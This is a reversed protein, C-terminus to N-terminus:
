NQVNYKRIKKLQEKAWEVHSGNGSKALRQEAYDCDGHLLANVAMNYNITPDDPHYKLAMAYIAVFEPSGAEHAGAAICFEEASLKTANNGMIKEIIEPEQYDRITYSIEYDTRRLHPYINTLLFKYSEPYHTKISAEKSDPDLDSGIIKIIEDKGEISLTDLSAELGAWNEAVSSTDFIAIPLKYIIRIYDRLAATRKEALDANVTYKGEPSAYGKLTINEVKIDSDTFVTDLTARIESLELRNDSYDPYIETKNVPFDIYATGRLLRSKTNKERAQLQAVDPILWIPNEIKYKRIIRLSDLIDSNAVDKLSSCCGFSGVFLQLTAGNLQSSYPTNVIYEIPQSLIKSGSKYILEKEGYVPTGVRQEQIYRISGYVGIPDLSITDHASILKPVIEISRSRAVDLRSLDLQLGVTVYDGNRKLDVNNIKIAEIAETATKIKAQSATPCYWLTM